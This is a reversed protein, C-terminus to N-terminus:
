GEEDEDNSGGQDVTNKDEIVDNSVIGGCWPCNYFRYEDSWEYTRCVHNYQSMEKDGGEVGVGGKDAGGGM